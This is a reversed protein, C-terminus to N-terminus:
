EDALKRVLVALVAASEHVARQDVVEFTDGATHYHKVEDGHHGWLAVTPVGAAVFPAHDSWEGSLEGIEESLAFGPLAACVRQLKERLDPPGAAGLKRPAGPMDVNIAAAVRPLECAHAAVYARSGSLNQEEGMYWVFRVTRRPRWGTAALARAAELVAISGTANDIAGEALHWSDLHAGVIVLETARPGRGPLEAVTNFAAADWTESELQIRLQVRQGVRLQEALAVGDEHRIAIGPEPRPEAHGSGIIPARGPQSVVVLGAAGLALARRMKDARKDGGDQVLVLRGLAADGLQRFDDDTGAAGDVLEAVLGGPPTSLTNGLAIAEPLARPPDGDVDVTLGKLKWGPMTFLELHVNTLGYTGARDAIFRAAHVANTTGSLRGGPLCIARLNHGVHEQLMIEGVCLRDVTVGAPLRCGSALLM